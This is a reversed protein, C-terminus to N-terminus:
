CVCLKREKRIAIFIQLAFLKYTRALETNFDGGIVISDLNDREAISSLENLVENFVDLNAYDYHTDCPMYVTALMITETGTCIKVGCLRRNSSDIPTVHCATSRKWIVCCGGYPRGTLFTDQEMGSVGHFVADPLNDSLVHMQSDLLWHEQLLVFDHAAYIDNLYHWKTANVGRINYSCIKM